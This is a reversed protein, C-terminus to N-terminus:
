DANNILFTVIDLRCGNGKEDAGCIDPICHHMCSIAAVKAIEINVNQDCEPDDFRRMCANTKLNVNGCVYDNRYQYLDLPIKKDDDAYFAALLLKRM